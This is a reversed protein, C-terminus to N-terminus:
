VAMKGGFSPKSWKGIKTRKITYALAPVGIKKGLDNAISRVYTGSSCKIKFSALALEAYSFNQGHRLGSAPLAAFNKMHPALKEKWIKIIEQQRFDGKVKKIRKEIGALLSEPSVKRLKLFKLSTVEVPHEPRSVRRGQRAYKFLAKGAVTKSSYIPYKQPFKGTFFKLNAKIKKALEKEGIAIRTNELVSSHAVKGLIDYTDTAM